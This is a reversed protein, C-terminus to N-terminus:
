VATEGQPLAAPIYARYLKNLENWRETRRFDLVLRAAEERTVRGGRVGQEAWAAALAGFESPALSSGPLRSDLWDSLADFFEHWGGVFGPMWPTEPGGPLDGGLDDPVPTFPASDPSFHQVFRMRTADGVAELEYQFYADPHSGHSFRIFRPPEWSLVTGSFEGSEFRYAGGVRTEITGSIFWVGFEAPDTIARWVRAIPHAYVRIYEITFRDIFRALEVEAM